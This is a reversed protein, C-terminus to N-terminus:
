SRSTVSSCDVSYVFSPAGSSSSDKDSSPKSFQLSLKFNTTDGKDIGIALAYALDDISMSTKQTSVSFVIFFVLLISLFIKSFKNM